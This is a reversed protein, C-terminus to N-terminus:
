LDIPLPRMRLAAHGFRQACPDHMANPRTVRIPGRRVKGMRSACDAAHQVVKYGTVSWHVHGNILVAIMLAETIQGVSLGAKLGAEVQSKAGDEHGAIVELVIFILETTARDLHGDPPDRYIAERPALYAAYAAPAHRRMAAVSAPMAGSTQEFHQVDGANETM